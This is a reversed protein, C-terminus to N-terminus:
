EGWGGPDSPTGRIQAAIRRALAAIEDGLLVVVLLALSVSAATVIVLVALRSMGAQGYGSPRVQVLMGDEERVGEPPALLEGVARTATHRLASARCYLHLLKDKM